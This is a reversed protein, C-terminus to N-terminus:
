IMALTTKRRPPPFLRDLAALEAASLKLDAAALNERLHAERVAKPIAIVGPQHLVWALALQTPTV